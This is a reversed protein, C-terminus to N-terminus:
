WPATPLNDDSCCNQLDSLIVKNRLIEPATCRTCGPRVYPQSASLIWAIKLSEFNITSQCIHLM